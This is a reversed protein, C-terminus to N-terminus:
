ANAAEKLVNGIKASVRNKAAITLTEGTQPNRGEHAPVYTSKVSLGTFLKVEVSTEENAVALQNVTLAEITDIIERAKKQSVGTENAVNKALENVNMTIKTM